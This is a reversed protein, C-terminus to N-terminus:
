GADPGSESGADIPPWAIRGELIRGAAQSELGRAATKIYACIQAVDLGEAGRL